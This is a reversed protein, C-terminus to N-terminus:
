KGKRNNKRIKRIRKLNKERKGSGECYKYLIYGNTDLRRIGVRHCLNVCANTITKSKCKHITFDNMFKKFEHTAYPAKYQDVIKAKQQNNCGGKTTLMNMLYQEKKQLEEKTPLKNLMSMLKCYSLGFPIKVISFTQNKGEKVLVDFGSLHKERNEALAVIVGKEHAIKKADEPIETGEYIVFQERFTRIEEYSKDDFNDKIGAFARLKLKRMQGVNDNIYMEDWTNSFESYKINARNDKHKRVLAMYVLLAKEMSISDLRIITKLGYDCVTSKKAKVTYPKLAEHGDINLTKLTSYAAKRIEYSEHTQVIEKLKDIVMGCEELHSKMYSILTRDSVTRLMNNNDDEQIKTLFYQDPTPPNEIIEITHLECAKEYDITNESNASKSGGAKRYRCIDNESDFYTLRYYEGDKIMFRMTEQLKEFAEKGTM